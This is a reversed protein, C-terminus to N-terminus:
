HAQVKLGIVKREHCTTISCKSYWTLGCSAVVLMLTVSLAMSGIQQIRRLRFTLFLFYSFCRITFGYVTHKVQTDLCTSPDMINDLLDKMFVSQGPWDKDNTTVNTLCWETTKGDVLSACIYGRSVELREDSAKCDKEEIVEFGFTITGLIAALVCLYKLRSCLM